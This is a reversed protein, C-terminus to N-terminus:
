SRSENMWADELEKATMNCSAAYAEVRGRITEQSKDLERMLIQAAITPVPRGHIKSLMTLLRLDADSVQVVIRNLQSNTRNPHNNAMSYSNSELGRDLGIKANLYDPSLKKNSSQKQIKDVPM